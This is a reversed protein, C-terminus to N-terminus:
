PVSITTITPNDSLLSLWALLGYFVVYGALVSIDSTSYVKVKGVSFSFLSKTLKM